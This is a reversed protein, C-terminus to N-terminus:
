SVTVYQRTSMNRRQSMNDQNAALCAKSSNSKLVTQKTSLFSVGIAYDNTQGSRPQLRIQNLGELM